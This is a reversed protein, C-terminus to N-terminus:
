DADPQREPRAGDVVPLGLVAEEVRVVHLDTRARDSGALPGRYSATSRWYGHLRLAPASVGAIAAGAASDRPM